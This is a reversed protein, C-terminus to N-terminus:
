DSSSAQKFIYNQAYILINFGSFVYKQKLKDMIEKKTKPPMQGGDIYRHRHEAKAMKEEDDSSEEQVTKNNELIPHFIKDIVREKLEGNSIIGITKLFPDLLAALEEMSANPQIKNMEPIFIDCIQLPIGTATESGEQESKVFLKQVLNQYWAMLENSNGNEHLFRLLRNFQLRLFLLFKDIRFNDVKDWHMNFIFLFQTFWEKKREIGDLNDM